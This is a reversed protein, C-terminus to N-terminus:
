PWGVPCTRILRLTEPGPYEWYPGQVGEHRAGLSRLAKHRAQRWRTFSQERAPM